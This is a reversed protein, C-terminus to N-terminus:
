RLIPAVQVLDVDGREGGGHTAFAARGRGAEVTQTGDLDCERDALCDFGSTTHRDRLSRFSSADSAPRMAVLIAATRAVSRRTVRSPDPLMAASRSTWRVPELTSRSAM